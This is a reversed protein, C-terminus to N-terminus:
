IISGKDVLEARLIHLRPDAHVVCLSTNTDRFAHIGLAVVSKSM